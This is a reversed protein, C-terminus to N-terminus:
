VRETEVVQLHSIHVVSARFAWGNDGSFYDMAQKRSKTRCPTATDCSFKLGNTAKQYLDGGGKKLLNRLIATRTPHLERAQERRTPHVRHHLIANIQLRVLVSNKHCRSSCVPGAASEIGFGAHQINGKFPRDRHHTGVSPLGAARPEAPIPRRRHNKVAPPADGNAIVWVYEGTNLPTPLGIYGGGAPAKVLDLRLGALAFQSSM